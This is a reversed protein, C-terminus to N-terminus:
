RDSRRLGHWAARNAQSEDRGPPSAPTRRRPLGKGAPHRYRRMAVKIVRQENGIKSLGSGHEERRRVRSRQSLRPGNAFRAFMVNKYPLSVARWRRQDQPMYAGFPFILWNRFDESGSQRLRGNHRSM